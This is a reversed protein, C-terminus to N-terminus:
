GELPKEAADGAAEEPQAGNEAGGTKDKNFLVGGEAIQDDLLEKHRNKLTEEIKFTKDIPKWVWMASILAPVVRGLIAPLVIAPPFFIILVVQAVVFLLNIIAAAFSRPLNGIALILSNKAMLLSSLDVYAAQMFFYPLAMSFLLVSLVFLALWVFHLQGGSLFFYLAMLIQSGTVVSFLIGPVVMQKFNEKFKQKFDHWIFGPDDRLMKGLLFSEAARAPGVPVSLLLAVALGLFFSQVNSNVFQFVAFVFALQSPLECLFVLMNLKTLNGLDRGLIEFFRGFGKKRPANKPVGPGPKNYDKKFLAM